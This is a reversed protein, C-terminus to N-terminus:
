NPAQRDLFALQHMNQLIHFMAKYTDDPAASGEMLEFTLDVWKSWLPKTSSGAPILVLCRDFFGPPVKSHCWAGLWTAMLDVMSRPDSPGNWDPDYSTICGNDCYRFLDKWQHCRSEMFDADSTFPSLDKWPVAM